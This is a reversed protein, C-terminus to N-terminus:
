RKELYLVKDFLNYTINFDLLIEQGMLGDGKRNSNQNLPDVEFIVPINKWKKSAFQASSIRGKLNSTLTSDAGFGSRKPYKKKKDILKYKNVAHNHITLYNDAGTDIKLILTLYESSGKPKIEVPLGFHNSELEILNLPITNTNNQYGANKFFRMEMQDINTEVVAQKLLDFGIIGDVNIKLYESIHSLDMLLLSINEAKFNKSFKLENSSSEKTELTKGSTGIRSTGSINLELKNSVKTDIVTVGAGSDFMFNLPEKSNNVNLKVFILHDVIQIPIKEILDQAFAANSTIFFLFPLVLKKM